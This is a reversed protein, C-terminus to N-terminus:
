ILFSLRPFLKSVIVAWSSRVVFEVKDEPVSTYIRPGIPRIRGQKKLDTISKRENTTTGPFILPPLLSSTDIKLEM